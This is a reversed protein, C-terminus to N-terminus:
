FYEQNRDSRFNVKEVPSMIPVIKTKVKEKVVTMGSWICLLMAAVMAMENIAFGSKMIDLTVSEVEVNSSSFMTALNTVSAYGALLSSAYLLPTSKKYVALFSYIGTLFVFTTLDVVTFYAGYALDASESAFILGSGIFVAVIISLGLIKSVFNGSKERDSTGSKAGMYLASLVGIYLLSGGVCCWISKAQNMTYQYGDTNNVIGTTIDLGIKGAINEVETIISSSSSESQNHGGNSVLMEFDPNFFSANNQPHNVNISFERCMNLSAVSAMNGSGSVDRRHTLAALLMGASLVTFSDEEFIWALFCFAYAAVFAFVDYYYSRELYQQSMDFPNQAWLIFGGAIM